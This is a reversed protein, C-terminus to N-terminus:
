EHLYKLRMSKLTRKVKYRMEQEDANSIEPYSDKEGIVYDCAEKIWVVFGLAKEPERLALRGFDSFLKPLYDALDMGTLAKVAARHEQKYIPLVYSVAVSMELMRQGAEESTLNYETTKEPVLNDSSM